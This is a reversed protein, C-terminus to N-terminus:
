VIGMKMLVAGLIFAGIAYTWKAQVASRESVELRLVQAELDKKEEELTNARRAERFAAEEWERAADEVTGRHEVSVTPKALEAKAEDSYETGHTM